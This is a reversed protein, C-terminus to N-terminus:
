DNSKIGLIKFQHCYPSFTDKFFFICTQSGVTFRDRRNQRFRTIEAFDNLVNKMDILVEHLGPHVTIKSWSVPQTSDPNASIMRGLFTM